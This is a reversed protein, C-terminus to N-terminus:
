EIKLDAEALLVAHDSMASLKRAFIYDSSETIYKSKPSTFHSSSFLTHDLKWGFEDNNNWWWSSCEPLDYSWGIEKLKEFRM